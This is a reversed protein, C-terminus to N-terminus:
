GITFGLGLRDLIRAAALVFRERSIFQESLDALQGPRHKGRHGVNQALQDDIRM